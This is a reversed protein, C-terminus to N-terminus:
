EDSHPARQLKMLEINAKRRKAANTKVHPGGKGMLPSRAVPNRVKPPPPASHLKARKM